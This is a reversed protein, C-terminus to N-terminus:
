RSGLSALEISEAEALCAAREEALRARDAETLSPQEQALDDIVAVMQHLSGHLRERLPPVEPDELTRARRLEVAARADDMARPDGMCARVRARNLLVIARVGMLDARNALSQESSEFVELAETYLAEAAPLDGAAERSMGEYRSCDGKWQLVVADLSGSRTIADRARHASLITLRFDGADFSARALTHWAIGPTLPSRAREDWLSAERKWSDLLAPLEAARGATLMAQVNFPWTRARAIMWDEPKASRAEWVRCAAQLELLESFMEGARNMLNLSSARLSLANVAELALEEHPEQAVGAPAAMQAAKALLELAEDSRGLNPVYPYGVVQALAVYYRVAALRAQPDDGIRPLLQEVQPRVRELISYRVTAASRHQQLASVIGTLVQNLTGATAREARSARVAQLGVALFGISFALLTTLLTSTFVPHRRAAERARVLAGPERATVPRGEVWNLLDDRLERANQYRRSVNRCMAAAIVARLDRRRPADAITPSPIPDREICRLLQFATRERVDLWPSGQLLEFLVAGLAFVDAREDVPAGAAQEPSVYAWHGIVHEGQSVSAERDSSILRAVGFDVVKLVGSRDILINSPSLDRHIVGRDHAHQVADCAALFLRVRQTADLASRRAHETIPLGDVFEMAIFPLRELGSADTQVARAEYVAAINPHNLRGLADAERRFRTRQLTNWVGAKMVKLAVRRRPADQQAEYVVGMGGRGVERLLVYSGLRAGPGLPASPAAAGVQAGHGDIVAGGAARRDDGTISIAPSQLFNPSLDLAGLLSLVECAVEPSELRLAAERDAAPLEALDDFLRAALASIM